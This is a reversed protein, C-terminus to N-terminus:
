FIPGLAHMWQYAMVLYLGLGFWLGRIVIPRARESFHGAFIMFTLATFAVGKFILIAPILGFQEMLIRSILNAEVTTGLQSVGVYTFVADVIQLILLLAGLGNIELSRM